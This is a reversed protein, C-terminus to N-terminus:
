VFQRMSDDENEKSHGTPQNPRKELQRSHHSHVTHFKLQWCECPEAHSETRHKHDPKCRNGSAVAEPDPEGLGFGPPGPHSEQSCGRSRQEKYGKGYDHGNIQGQDVRELMKWGFLQQVLPDVWDSCDLDEVKQHCSRELEPDM